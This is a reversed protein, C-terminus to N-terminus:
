ERFHQINFNDSISQINKVYKHLYIFNEDHMNITVHHTKVYINTSTETMM